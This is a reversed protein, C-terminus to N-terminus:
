FYGGCWRRFNISQLKDQCDFIAAALSRYYLALPTGLPANDTSGNGVDVKPDAPMQVREVDALLGGAPPPIEIRRKAALANGMSALSDACWSRAQEIEGGDSQPLAFFPAGAILRTVLVDCSRLVAQIKRRPIHPDQDYDVFASLKNAQGLLQLSKKRHATVAATRQAPTLSPDDLKQVHDAASLLTSSLLKHLGRRPSRTEFLYGLLLVTAFGGSMGLYNNAFSAFDYTPPTTSVSILSKAVIVSMMAMLSTGPNRSAIGYMFPLYFLVLWPVLQALTDVGPMILFHFVAGAPLAAALGTLITRAVLAVPLQANMYALIMMPIMSSQLGLPWDVLIFFWAGLIVQLAALLSKGMRARLTPGGGVAAEESAVRAGPSEVEALSARVRGALVCFDRIRQGLLSDETSAGIDNGRAPGSDSAADFGPHEVDSARSRGDRPKSLQSITAQCANEFTDLEHRLADSGPM